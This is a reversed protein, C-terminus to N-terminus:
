IGIADLRLWFGTQLSDLTRANLCINLSTEKVALFTHIFSGSSHLPARYIAKISM